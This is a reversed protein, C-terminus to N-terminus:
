GRRRWLRRRGRGVSLVATVLAVDPLRSFRRTLGSVGIRPFTPTMDPPEDLRNLDLQRAAIYKRLLPTRISVKRGDIRIAETQSGDNHMKYYVGSRPDCWLNHFLRFQQDIEILSEGAGHFDRHLVLPEVGDERSVVPHYTTTEIGDPWSQSFGPGGDTVTLDWGADALARTRRETPSLACYIANRGASESVWDSVVTWPDAGLREFDSRQQTQTLDM